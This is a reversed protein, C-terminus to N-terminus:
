VLLILQTHRPHSFISLAHKLRPMLSCMGDATVYPFSGRHGYLPGWLRESPSSSFIELAEASFRVWATRDIADWTVTQVSVAELCKLSHSPITSVFFSALFKGKLWQAQQVCGQLLMYDDVYRIVTPM